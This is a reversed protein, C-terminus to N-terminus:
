LDGVEFEITSNLEYGQPDSSDVISIHLNVVGNDDFNPSGSISITGNQDIHSHDILM